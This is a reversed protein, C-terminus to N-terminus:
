GIAQMGLCVGFIKKTSAYRRVVDKLIGAEDPLGPGPSLVLYDYAAVAEETIEDNRFVDVTCNGQERIIHVLNYTFSDYNDLVLVKKM